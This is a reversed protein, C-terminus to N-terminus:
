GEKNIKEQRQIRFKLGNPFIFWGNELDTKVCSSAKIWLTDSIIEAQRKTLDMWLYGAWWVDNTKDAKMVEAHFVKFQNTKM